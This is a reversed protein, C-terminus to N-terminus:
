VALEGALLYLEALDDRDDSRFYAVVNSLSDVHVERTQVASAPNSPEAVIRVHGTYVVAASDPHPLHPHLPEKRKSRLLWHGIPAANLVEAGAEERLERDLADLHSEGPEKKGGPFQLRGNAQVIYLYQSDVRPVIYANAILHEPPLETSVMFGGSAAPNEFPALLTPYREEFPTLV